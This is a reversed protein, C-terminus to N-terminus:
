PSRGCPRLTEVIHLVGIRCAPCRPRPPSAPIPTLTDVIPGRDTRPTPSVAVLQERAHALLARRSPSFLGYHRVKTFGRPLVHQLFRSLVAVADLTCRRI